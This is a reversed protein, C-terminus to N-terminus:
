SLMRWVLVGVMLLAGPGASLLILQITAEQDQRKLVRWRQLAGTFTHLATLRM